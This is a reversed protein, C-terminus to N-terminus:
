FQYFESALFRFPDELGQNNKASGSFYKMDLNEAVNIGEDESCIRRKDLDTKNAFLVTAIPSSNRGKWKTKMAISYWYKVDELSKKNTVDYVIMLLDPTNWFSELCDVYLDLSPSDFVLLEVADAKGPIQIFKSNVEAALTMSYNKPFERGDSLFVQSIATKGVAPNGSLHIAM